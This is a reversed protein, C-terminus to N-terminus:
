HKKNKRRRLFTRVKGVARRPILYLWRLPHFLVWFRAYFRYGPQTVSYTKGKRTFGTVVALIQDQRLKETFFQNDGCLIYGTKTKRLIRHLVYQGNDRQYLIVDTAKCSGTVPCIAVTDKRNHLMPLMSWGTVTLLASGSTDMQLQLIPMLEEMPIAVQKM